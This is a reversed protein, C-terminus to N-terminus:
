VLYKWLSHRVLGAIERRGLKQALTLPNGEERGKIRPDAGKALLYKVMELQNGKVADYLATHGYQFGFFEEAKDNIDAGADLLFKVIDLQGTGAALGLAYNSKFNSGKRVLLKVMDFNENKIALYVVSLQNLIPFPNPDVNKELLYSVVPFNGQFAATTLPTFYEEPSDDPRLGAPILLQYVELNAAFGAATLVACSNLHPACEICHKIMDLDTRKIADVLVDEVTVDEEQQVAPHDAGLRARLVELNTEECQKCRESCPKNHPIPSM